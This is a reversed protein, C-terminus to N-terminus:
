TGQRCRRATSEIAEAARNAAGAVEWRRWRQPDTETAATLLAPWARPDPVRQAVVALRHRKLVRATARQEDFPRSQPVVTAPRRAAAVDAICSQGAHTVVVDAERIDRWPDPKWSGGTGGLTTWSQVSHAAACDQLSAGFADGAGSLVLVRTESLPKAPILSGSDGGDRGEFRSIGGVYSTKEDWQRLWSPVCLARPWAAVIHDALRHVLVHPADVRNGPLAMVIVPVGLLRIFVAVEVSVDVVVAEPRADSVWRAIEHMRVSFGADHHPAWHLAGHATSERPQQGEDDRPLRM